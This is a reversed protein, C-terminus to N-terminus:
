SSGPKPKWETKYGEGGYLSEYHIEMGLRHKVLDAFEAHETREFPEVSLLFQDSGTALVTMSLKGRLINVSAESFEGLPKRCACPRNQHDGGSRPWRQHASSGGHWGPALRGAAGPVPARFHSRTAADGSGRVRLSCSVLRRYSHCLDCRRYGREDTARRM